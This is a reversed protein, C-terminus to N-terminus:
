FYATTKVLGVAWDVPPDTPADDYVTTAASLGHMYHGELKVLWYPNLDFRVTGAVDRQMRATDDRADVDGFSSSYYAGFHLWPETELTALLYYGEGTVETDPYQTQDSSELATHQRVYEAAVLVRGRLYQVSGVALTAPIEYDVLAKPTPVSGELKTALVSGALSLGPLPTEWLLQGGVTYPVDIVLGATSSPDIFITGGYAAYDLHGAGGLDLVGYVQGGTVALLFERSTTPYISSPLLVAVRAPDYDSITNYLGFPMKVRGARLGFADAPHWDLHFWDLTVEYDGIPGLDRSFLQM